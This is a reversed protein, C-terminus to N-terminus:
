ENDNEVEKAPTSYYYMLKNELMERLAVVPPKEPDKETVIEREELIEEEGYDDGFDFSDREAIRDQNIQRARKALIIIAEYINVARRELESIPITEIAM